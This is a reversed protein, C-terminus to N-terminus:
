FVIEYPSLIYVIRVLLIISLVWLVTRVFSEWKGGTYFFKTYPVLRIKRPLISKLFSFIKGIGIFLLSWLGEPTLMDLLMHSVLGLSFGLGVLMLIAKEASYGVQPLKLVHWMLALSLAFFLDSHTQWSRHKAKFLGLPGKEANSLHLVKNIVVSVIDRSPIANENHDLDPFTSGYVAFPYMVLLQIAPSVNNLLLGKSELYTFGGLVCLVGGVRHTKGTM